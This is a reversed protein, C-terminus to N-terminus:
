LRPAPHNRLGPVSRPSARRCPLLAALPDFSTFRAANNVLGDLQGFHGAVANVLARTEAVSELNAQFVPAGGCEAATL